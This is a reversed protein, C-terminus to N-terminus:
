FTEHNRGHISVSVGHLGAFKIAMGLLVYEDDHYGAAFADQHLYIVDGKSGVDAAFADVAKAFEPIYHRITAELEAVRSEEDIMTTGSDDVGMLLKKPAAM